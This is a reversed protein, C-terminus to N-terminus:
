EPRKGTIQGAQGPPLYLPFLTPEELRLVQGFLHAARIVETLFRRRAERTWPGGLYDSLIAEIGLICREVDARVSRFLTIATVDGELAWDLYPYLQVSKRLAIRRFSEAFNRLGAIQADEDQDRCADLLSRMYRCTAEHEQALEAVLRPRYRIRSESPENSDSTAARPAQSRTSGFIDALFRSM